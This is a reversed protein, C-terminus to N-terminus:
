FLAAMAVVVATTTGYLHDIETLENLFAVSVGRAAPAWKSICYSQANQGAGGNMRSAITHFHPTGFFPSGRRSWVIICNNHSHM